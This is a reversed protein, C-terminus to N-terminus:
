RGNLYRIGSRCMAHILRMGSDHSGKDFSDGTHDVANSMLAVVGVPLGRAQSFALLSAAQMEVALVGKAEHENLQQQTERYPADTTWVCGKFTPLGTGGVEAALIEALEANSRVRDGPPIYHYSTGEDRIAEEVVALSPLPLSGLVRGASTLGLVVGAGSAKLQEAVLVAYSGGITRPIIGCREGDVDVAYMPTHFCAWNEWVEAHGNALLWDSLDGDFELVCVSPINTSALKRETRVAAVLGEATFASPQELPHRLLPINNSISHM